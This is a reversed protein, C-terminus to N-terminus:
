FCLNAPALRVVELVLVDSRKGLVVALSNLVDPLVDAVEDPVLTKEGGPQGLLKCVCTTLEGDVVHSGGDRGEIAVNVRSVLFHELTDELSKLSAQGLEALVGGSLRLGDTVQQVSDLIDGHAATSVVVDQAEDVFVEDGVEGRVSALLGALEVRRVFNALEHALNHSVVALLLALDGDTFSEVRSPYLIAACERQSRSHNLHSIIPEDWM